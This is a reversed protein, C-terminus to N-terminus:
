IGKISSTKCLHEQPSSSKIFTGTSLIRFNRFDFDGKNNFFSM